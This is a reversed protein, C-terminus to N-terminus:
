NHLLFAGVNIFPSQIISFKNLRTFQTIGIRYKFYNEFSRCGGFM